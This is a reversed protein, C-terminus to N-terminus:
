RLEALVAEYVEAALDKKPVYNKSAEVKIKSSKSTLVTPTIVVDIEDITARVQHTKPHLETIDGRAKAVKQAAEYVQPVTYDVNGEVGNQTVAYATAGGAAVGIVAAACGALIMAGVVAVLVLACRLVRM